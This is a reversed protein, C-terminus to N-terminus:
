VFKNGFCKKEDDRAGSMARTYYEAMDLKVRRVTMARWREVSAAEDGPSHTGYKSCGVDLWFKALCARTHPGRKNDNGCGAAAVHVCAAQPTSFGFVCEGCGALM